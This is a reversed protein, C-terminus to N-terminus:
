ELCYAQINELIQSVLVTEVQHSLQADTHSNGSNFASGSTGSSSAYASEYANITIAAAGVAIVIAVVMIVSTIKKNMFRRYYELM